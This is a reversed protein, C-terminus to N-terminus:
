RSFSGENWLIVQLEDSVRAVLERFEVAAARQGLEWESSPLDVSLDLASNARPVLDGLAAGIAGLRARLDQNDAVARELAEVTQVIDAYFESRAYPRAADKLREAVVLSESSTSTNHM